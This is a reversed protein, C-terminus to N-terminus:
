HEQNAQWVQVIEQHKSKECFLLVLVLLTLNPGNGPPSEISTAFHDNKSAISASKQYIYDPLATSDTFEQVASATSILSLTLWLVRM